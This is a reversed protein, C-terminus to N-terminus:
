KEELPPGTPQSQTKNEVRLPCEEKEVWQKPRTHTEKGEPEYFAAWNSNKQGM